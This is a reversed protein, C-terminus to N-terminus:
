EVVLTGVMGEEEHFRCFFRYSGPTLYAGIKDTVGIDGPGLDFDFPGGDVIFGHMLSGVNRIRLKRTALVAPCPPDFFKDRMLIGTRGEIPATVGECASDLTAEAGGEPLTEENRDGGIEADGGCAGLSLAFVLLISARRLM